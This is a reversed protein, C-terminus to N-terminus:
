RSAGFAERRPVAAVGLVRRSRAVLKASRTRRVLAKSVAPFYRLWELAISAGNESLLLEQLWEGARLRPGFARRWERAYVRAAQAPSAFANEIGRAALRGSELAVAMGEGLLPAAFAAADGCLLAGSESVPARNAFTMGATALYRESVRTLRKWIEAFAANRRAGVELLEEPDRGRRDFARRRALFCVNVAGGEIPAVGVYAEELPFLSVSDADVDGSFHAKMGVYDAGARPAGRATLGPIRSARGLAGVVHRAREELPAEGDAGRLVFDARTSELSAVRVGERVEAGAARAAARLFVDLRARSFGLAPAPLAGGISGRSSAVRWRSLVAPREVLLESLIGLADLSGVGDPSLFEGCFREPAGREREFLLVDVGSRALAIAASAGAPGGGVIAVPRVM